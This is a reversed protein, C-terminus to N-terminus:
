SVSLMNCSFGECRVSFVDCADLYAHHEATAPDFGKGVSKFENSLPIHLEVRWVPGHVVDLRSMKLTCGSKGLVAEVTRQPDRFRVELRQVSIISSCRILRVDKIKNQETNM